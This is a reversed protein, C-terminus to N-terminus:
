FSAINRGDRIAIELSVSRRDGGCLRAAEVILRLPYIINMEWDM